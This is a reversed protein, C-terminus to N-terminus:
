RRVVDGKAVVKPQANVSAIGGHLAGHKIGDIKDGAKANDGTRKRHV